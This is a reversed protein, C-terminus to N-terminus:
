PHAHIPGGGSYMYVILPNSIRNRSLKLFYCLVLCYLFLKDLMLSVRSAIPSPVSVRDVRYNLDFRKSIHDRGTGLVVVDYEEPLDM